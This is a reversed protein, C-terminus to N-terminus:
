HRPMADLGVSSLRPPLYTSCPTPAPLRGAFFSAPPIRMLSHFDATMHSQDYFGHDAAAQALPTGDADALLRRIRGIRAFQKPSVGIGSAFLSRLQRESVALQAAAEPVSIRSVTLAHAAAQLMAQRRRVEPTDPIWQPLSEELLRVADGTSMEHLAGAFRALPGPLEHLSVIQDALDAATVGLLTEVSGPRISLRVCSASTEAVNYYARTYPGVVAVDRRGSAETRLVLRITADPLHIFPEAFDEVLPIVGGELFWPALAPPVSRRHEYREVIRIAV